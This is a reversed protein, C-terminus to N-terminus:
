VTENINSDLPHIPITFNFNSGKGPESEVWIEGGHQHVIRQVISLGMGTGEYEENTHLRKFINFIGGLHESDIGIGNDKVSFLYQDGDIEKSIHIQPSNERRYKIANGILNQFLLIMQYADGVIIPLGNHIITANNENILVKLNINVTDLVEELDVYDFMLEKNAIRSYELLDLIMNDLRKAGDVAFSIFENADQDLQDKYRKELLQLFSTIMRLPERLDHSAAYAFQQLDANTNALEETRKALENTRLEVLEELNEWYERLEEEAKKLETVDRAAAFIGVVEGYEDKYVAANYMVPTNNGNRHKIELPYDRVMGEKFVLQYGEKAENPRTFYDAFDTGVLEVRTHGTVNETARNVDTIMGDPGITVLPDLSTEILNRNYANSLKLERTREDVLKELNDLTEKLKIEAQKRETIDMGVALIEQIKGEDDYIPKNTWRIWVRKGNKLINENENVDYQDPDKVIDQVINALSKGAVEDGPVITMVSQNLLEEETYGFFKEAYENFFTIQGETTWRIIISNTNQVLERYKEESARLKRNSILRNMAISIQDAVVKMLALEEPAFKIRSKTGFSLTGISQGEILLPHCAYAQVGYSKVLGTRPDQNEFINEAVVRRSQLAACGCIGRGFDLWEIRQTEEKPIGSYANLHLCGKENDVLYNLFLDCDLFNMTELCISDIITQPDDNTLLKRFVDALLKDRQQNWLLTDKTKKSELNEILDWNGERRIIAFQHNIIVDIIENASCKNLSYTCLAMMPYNGIVDNIEVEYNVFDDWDDKELWFTNGSLRLGSYGKDLARDLKEVWGNLVRKSNFVDDNVYWQTYPLIELQGEELYRNVDPLVKGLAERAEEVGLPESTVWMCFENSDLGAKFYPVLIDILDDKTRYFQCFHTGWPVDGMIDIGSKRLVM